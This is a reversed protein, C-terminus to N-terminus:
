VTPNGSVGSIFKYKFPKLYNNIQDVLTKREKLLIIQYELASAWETEQLGNLTETIHSLTPPLSPYRRELIESQTEEV